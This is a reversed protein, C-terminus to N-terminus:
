TRLNGRSATREDMRGIQKELKTRDDRPDKEARMLSAIEKRGANQAETMRYIRHVYAPSIRRRHHQRIWIALDRFSLGEQRLRRMAPYFLTLWERDAGARWRRKIRIARFRLLRVRTLKEGARPDGDQQKQRLYRETDQMAAVSMALAASRITGADLGAERGAARIRFYIDHSLRMADARLLDPMAAYIYAMRDRAAEDM